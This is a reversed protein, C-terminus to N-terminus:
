KSLSNGLVKALEEDDISDDGDSYDSQNGEEPLHMQGSTDVLMLSSPTRPMSGTPALPLGDLLEAEDFEDYLNISPQEEVRTTKRPPSQFANVGGLGNMARRTSSRKSSSSRKMQQVPTGGLILVQPQKEKAEADRKQKAEAKQAAVRLSGQTHQASMSRMVPVPGSVTPLVDMQEFHSRQDTSPPPTPTEDARSFLKNLGWKAKEKKDADRKEALLLDM